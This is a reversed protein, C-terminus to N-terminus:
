RLSACPVVVRAPARAGNGITGGHTGGTASDTIGPGTTEDFRYLAVTNADSALAAMPVQTTDGTARATSSLRVDDIIGEFFQASSYAPRGITLAQTDNQRVFDGGLLQSDRLIGGAYIRLVGATLTGVVHMWKGAVVYESGANGASYAMSGFSDNGWVVIEVRRSRVLLSWGRSLAQDHHSVVHMEEGTTARAGPKIWAEVTLDGSLDLATHAPVSAFDDVGDFALARDSCAPPATTADDGADPAAPPPVSADEPAPVSSPPPLSPASPEAAGPTGERVLQGVSDIGCATLAVAVTLSALKNM